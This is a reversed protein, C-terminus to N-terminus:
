TEANGFLLDAEGSKMMDLSVGPPVTRVFYCCKHTML